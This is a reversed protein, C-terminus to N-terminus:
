QVWYFVNFTDTNKEGKASVKMKTSFLIRMAQIYLCKCLQQDKSPCTSQNWIKVTIFLVAVFKKTHM